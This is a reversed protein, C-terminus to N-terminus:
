LFRYKVCLITDILRLLKEILCKRIHLTTLSIFFFDKKVRVLAANIYLGDTQCEFPVATRFKYSVFNSTITGVRSNLRNENNRVPRVYPQRGSNLTLMGRSQRIVTNKFTLKKKLSFPHNGINQVRRCVSFHHLLKINKQGHMM